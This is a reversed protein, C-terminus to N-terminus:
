RAAGAALRGLVGDTTVETHDDAFRLSTGVVQAGDTEIRAYTPMSRRWRDLSSRGLDGAFARFVQRGAAEDDDWVGSPVCMVDAWTGTNVYVATQRGATDLPVRKPLHTHGYVVVQFGADAARQAPKLYTETEHAIDFTHRQLRGAAGLKRFTRYVAEIRWSMTEEPPAASRTAANRAQERAQEIEQAERWFERDQDNVKGNILDQHVPEHSSEDYDVKLQDRFKGFSNWVQKLGVGGLAVALPLAAADEPKLLDIFPYTGKLENMVDVVLRSGPLSPFEPSVPLRRSLQSRVRRLAGHPVANWADFRNGHEILIPGITFAENDYIFKVGESGIRDALAERVEPLSLEIDHNGLLLTLSGRRGSVYTALADWVVKTSRFISDLKLRAQAQDVTFSAFPQEALFDVIDGAIVLHTAVHPTSKPLGEIFHALLSHTSPPCMQFSAGSASAAAGGLHLDSIVYVVSRM